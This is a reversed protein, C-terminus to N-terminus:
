RQGTSSIRLGPQEALGKDSWRARELGDIVLHLLEDPRNTIGLATEPVPRTRDLKAVYFIAPPEVGQARLQALGDIGNDSGRDIDSVILDFRNVTTLDLAEKTGRAPEVGAGLTRLVQRFAVNNQPENDIWLITAGNFVPRVTLARALVNEIAGPPLVVRSKISKAQLELANQLQSLELKVGLAEFRSIRPVLQRIEKWSVLAFIIIALLAILKSWGWLLALARDPLSLKQVKALETDSEPKTSGKREM